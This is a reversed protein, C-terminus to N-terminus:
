HICPITYNQRSTKLTPIYNAKLMKIKKSGFFKKYLKRCDLSMNLDTIKLNNISFIYDNIIGNARDRYTKDGWKDIVSESIDQIVVDDDEDKLDQYLFTNTRIYENSLLSKLSDRIEQLCPKMYTDLFQCFLIFEKDLQITYLGEYAFIVEIIISHQEQLVIYDSVSPLGLGYDFLNYCSIPHTHFHIPSPIVPVNKQTGSVHEFGGNQKFVLDITNTSLDHRFPGSIEYNVNQIFYKMHELTTRNLNLNFTTTNLDKITLLERVQKSSIDREYQSSYPQYVLSVFLSNFKTQLSTTDTLRPNIFGLKTYVKSPLFERVGLWIYNRFGFISLFFQIAKSAYGKGRSTTSTCVDYIEIFDKKTIKGKTYSFATHIKPPKSSFNRDYILVINDYSRSFACENFHDTVYRQIDTTMKSFKGVFINEKNDLQLDIYTDNSIFDYIADQNDHLINLIFLSIKQDKTPTKTYTFVYVFEKLPYSYCRDTYIPNIFGLSIIDEFTSKPFSDKKTAFFIYHDHYINCIYGLIYVIISKYAHGNFIGSILLTKDGIIDFGCAFYMKSKTQAICLYTTSINNLTTKINDNLTDYKFIGVNVHINSM